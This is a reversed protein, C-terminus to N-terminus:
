YYNQTYQSSETPTLACPFLLGLIVSLIRREKHFALNWITFKIFLCFPFLSSPLPPTKVFLSL